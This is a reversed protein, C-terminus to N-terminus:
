SNRRQAGTPPEAPGPGDGEPRPDDPARSTGSASEFFADLEDALAHSIGRVGQAVASLTTEALFRAQEDADLDDFADRARDYDGSRADDHADDFRM